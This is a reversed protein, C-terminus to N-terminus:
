DTPVSPPSRLTDKLCSPTSCKALASTQSSMSFVVGVMNVCPLGHHYSNRFPLTMLAQGVSFWIRIACAPLRLDGASKAKTGGDAAAANADEAMEEPSEDAAASMAADEDANMEETASENAPKDNGDSPSAGKEVAQRAKAMEATVFKVDGLSLKDLAGLANHWRSEETSGQRRARGATGCRSQIWRDRRAM